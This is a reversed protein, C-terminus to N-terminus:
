SSIQTSTVPSNSICEMLLILEGPLPTQAPIERLPLRSMADANANESSTKYKLDYEYSALTLAWRQIRASLQPSVARSGDFLSLLPKHDTVLTFHCGYIYCHFKKMGFVCALGEKEIQAYKKETSSHEQPSPLLDNQVMLCKTPELETHLPTM